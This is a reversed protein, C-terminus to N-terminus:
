GVGVLASRVQDPEIFARRYGLRELRERAEEM